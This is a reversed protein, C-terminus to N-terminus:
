KKCQLCVEFVQLNTQTLPTKVLINHRGTFITVAANSLGNEIWQTTSMKEKEM